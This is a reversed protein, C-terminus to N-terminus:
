LQKATVKKWREENDLGATVDNYRWSSDEPYTAEDRLHQDEQSQDDYHWPHVDEDRLHEERYHIDNVLAGYDAGCRWCTGIASTGSFTLIEGCECELTLHAKHWHYIRGFPVELTEYHAQASEIIKSMRESAEEQRRVGGAYSCSPLWPARAHDM